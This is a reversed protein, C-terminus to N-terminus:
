GDDREEKRERKSVKGPAGTQGQGPDREVKYNMVKGTALLAQGRASHRQQEGQDPALPRKDEPNMGPPQSSLSANM